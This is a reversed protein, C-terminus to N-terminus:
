RERHREQVVTRHAPRRRRPKRSTARQPLEGSPAPALAHGPPRLLYPGTDLPVGLDRLAGELQPLTNQCFDQQVSLDEAGEGPKDQARVIATMLQAGSQPLRVLLGYGPRDDGLAVVAEAQDVLLTEFDDGVVCGLEALADATAEAVHERHRALDAREVAQHVLVEYAPPDTTEGLAASLEDREPPLADDVLNLLRVRREERALAEKRHAISRSVLVAIELAQTRARDVSDLATLEGFASWVADLDIPDCRHGSGGILREVDKVVHRLAEPDSRREGAAPTAQRERHRALEAAATANPAGRAPAMAAIRGRWRETWEADVVVTADLVAQRARTAIAELEAVETVARGREVEMATVVLKPLGLASAHAQLETLRAYAAAIEARLERRREAVIDAASIYYGVSSSM